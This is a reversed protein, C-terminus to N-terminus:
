VSQRRRDTGLNIVGPARSQQASGENSQSEAVPYVGPKAQHAKQMGKARHVIYASGLSQACGQCVWPETCARPMGRSLSKARHGARHFPLKGASKFGSARSRYTCDQLGFSEAKINWSSASTLRQKALLATMIICAISTRHFSSVISDSLCRSQLGKEGTFQLRWSSLQFEYFDTTTICFSCGSLPQSDSVQFEYFDKGAAQRGQDDLKARWCTKGLKQEAQRQIERQQLMNNVGRFLLTSSYSQAIGSWPMSLTLAEHLTIGTLCAACAGARLSRRVSVRSWSYLKDEPSTLEM